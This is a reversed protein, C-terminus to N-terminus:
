GYEPKVPALTYAKKFANHFEVDDGWFWEMQVLVSFGYDHSDTSVNVWKSSRPALNGVDVQPSSYYHRGSQADDVRLTLFTNNAWDRGGNELLISLNEAQLTKVDRNYSVKVDRVSVQSSAITGIVAPPWLTPTITPAATPTPTPTPAPTNLVCGAAVVALLAIVSITFIKIYM